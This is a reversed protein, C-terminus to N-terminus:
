RAVFLKLGFTLNRRSGLLNLLKESRRRCFRGLLKENINITVIAIFITLMTPNTSPKCLCQVCTDTDVKDDLHPFLHIDSFYECTLSLLHDILILRSSTLPCSSLRLQEIAFSHTRPSIYCNFAM